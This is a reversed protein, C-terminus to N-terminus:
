GAAMRSAVPVARVQLPTAPVPASLLLDQLLAPIRRRAELIQSAPIPRSILYGQLHLSRFESLAAFQRPSEIGEATIDLGLGECLGILATTIAASRINTDISSILSRDLKIRTLPLNELSALSSYGTGFDDLAIAIQHSRLRRMSELTTPGTQLVSETLELEICSAPLKFEELLRLVADVFGPDVLQRPSVNIAVRAQPWEGHHWLAATEIAKRLVWYGVEVILGSEETIPLFESPPAQRGDPLRWRLLSEVLVVEMSALSVEPQFVLEFENQAIARRLGQEITFRRTANALLEPTFVALQGRGLAKAQFLAADAASLLDEARQGHMPFLSAGVSARVIVQRGDLMLPQEFSAMLSRGAADVEAESVAAEYVVTFEDGGLRCAFGFIQSTEKLRQAIGTLVQDGFAHGLSDNLTKFNDIDIFFVAVHQRSVAARDLAHNLLVFLQRRNPLHTLPDHEALHQLERTRLEVKEELRQQYDRTMDRAAALQAAMKNFSVGLRDLEKIGGAEVRVDVDGNAIRETARQMSGVPGLISRVTLTSIALLVLLVAATIWAVTRRAHDDGTRTTTTVTNAVPAAALTPVASPTPERVTEIHTQSPQAVLVVSAAKSKPIAASLRSRAEELAAISQELRTDLTAITQRLEVSKAFDQQMQQVWGDGESKIFAAHNGAFTASFGAESAAIAAIVVEQSDGNGLRVFRRRIDDLEGHLQMLSQRALVRGFIKVAGDLSATLRREMGDTLSVYNEVAARRADALAVREAGAAEFAKTKPALQPAALQRAEAASRLTRSAEDLGAAAAEFEASTAPSNISTRVDIARQYRELAALLGQANVAPLQRVTPAATTVVRIEREVPAVPIVAPPLPNTHTTEIVAVGHEAIYNAAAALVAVAVFSVLLRGTIGFSLPRRWRSVLGDRTSDEADGITM